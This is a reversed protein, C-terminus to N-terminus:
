EKDIKLITVNYGGDVIFMEEKEKDYYSFMLKCFNTTNCDKKSICIKSNNM